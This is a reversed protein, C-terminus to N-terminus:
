KARGRACALVADGAKWDPPENCPGVPISRDDNQVNELSMNWLYFTQQRCNISGKGSAIHEATGPSAALDQARRSVVFGIDASNPRWSEGVGVKILELRERKQHREAFCDLLEDRNKTSFGKERSTYAAYM